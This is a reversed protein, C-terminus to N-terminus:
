RRAEMYRQKVMTLQRWSKSWVSELLGEMRTILFDLQRQENLDRVRALRIEAWRIHGEEDRAIQELTRALAQDVLPIMRSCRVVTFAKIGHYYASLKYVDSAQAQIMAFPRELMQDLTSSQLRGGLRKVEEGLIRLHRREDALQTKLGAKIELDSTKALWKELLTISKLKTRWLRQVVEIVADKTSQNKPQLAFAM